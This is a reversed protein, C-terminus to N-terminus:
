FALFRIRMRNEHVVQRSFFYPAMAAGPNIMIAPAHLAVRGVSVGDM